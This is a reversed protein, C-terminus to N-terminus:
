SVGYNRAYKRAAVGIASIASSLMPLRGADRVPDARM